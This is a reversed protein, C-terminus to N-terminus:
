QKQNNKPDNNVLLLASVLGTIASILLVIGAFITVGGYWISMLAFFFIIFSIFTTKM